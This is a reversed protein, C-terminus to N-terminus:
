EPAGLLGAPVMLKLPLFQMSVTAIVVVVEFFPLGDDVVVFTGKVPGDGITTVVVGVVVAKVTVIPPEVVNASDATCCVHEVPISYLKLVGAAGTATVVAVSVVEDPAVLVAFGAPM